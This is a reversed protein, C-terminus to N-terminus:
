SVERIRDVEILMDRIKECDKVAPIRLTSRFGGATTSLQLSSIGHQKMTADQLVAYDVISRFHLKQDLWGGEYQRVRLFAGEVSVEWADVERDTLRRGWRAHALFGLALLLVVSSGLRSAVFALTKEDPRVHRSLEVNIICVGILLGVFGTLILTTHLRRKHLFKRLRERDIDIVINEPYPDTM